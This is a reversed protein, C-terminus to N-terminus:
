EEMGKFGIEKAIEYLDNCTIDEYAEGRYRICLNAFWDTLQKKSSDYNIEGLFIGRTLESIVQEKEEDTYPKEEEYYSKYDFKYKADNSM